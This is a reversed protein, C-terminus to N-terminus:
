LCMCKEVKELDMFACLVDQRNAAYKQCELRVSFVQDM